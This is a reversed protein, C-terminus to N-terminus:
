GSSVTNLNFWFGRLKANLHSSVYLDYANHRYLVQWMHASLHKNLSHIPLIPLYPHLVSLNLSVSIPAPTAFKSSPDYATNLSQFFMQTILLLMDSPWITSSRTCTCSHYIPTSQSSGHPQVLLKSKKEQTSVSVKKKKKKKKSATPKFHGSEFMQKLFIM